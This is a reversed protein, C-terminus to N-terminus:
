RPFAEPLGGDVPLVAGTTPTRQAAFWVVAEGVHRPLVEAKLLSRQRYFDRLGAADLGRARMREPGVEQWLQSPAADDGFVADANIANVRVGFAAFELAAIRALQLAAAKSASYAGFGAGPAFTNKSAQLVVSGGTGQQQLLRGAHQLVRLTATTNVELVAQFRAPDMAVLTSVHAIGANPVVIDLGGFALVCARFLREVTAADTLDGPATVLRERAKPHRAALTALREVACDTAFVAAGADLLAAVIGSGIAGAAGTVFAVQGALWPEQQSGLKALELPWFEMAALEAPPLAEYRDLAHARAKVRLTHEAIDAAIAAARKSTQAAILGVGEVVAVVPLPSLGAAAAAAGGFQEQYRRQAVAFAQVQSRCRAPDLMEDRSLFLYQGKTRIVHDPTIPGLACLSAAAPHASWAALDDATRVETVVRRQAPGLQTDIAQALAGRLSPLARGLFEERAAAPLPAPEGSLMAPTGGLRRQLYREARDVLEITREYSERATAGFTFLGHKKLVIGRCQPHAEYAAAVAQALPFGPMIWPLVAVEDGYVARLHQDATPQDTLALIADAHTHDVFAHPLFAHLLTEVSPNPARSDLLAGRVADVMAQDSLERLARLERLPALRVAPLGAPEVAGLDSGSGKVHLVALERGLLDRATAKVSTNGGGHLVLDPDRGILRSTYVRLALGEGCAAYRRCYEAAEADNWRSQM